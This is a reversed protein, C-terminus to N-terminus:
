DEEVDGGCVSITIPVLATTHRRGESLRTPFYRPSGLKAQVVETLSLILDNGSGEGAAPLYSCLLVRYIVPNPSTRSLRM